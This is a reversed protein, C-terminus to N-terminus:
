KEIVVFSKSCVSCLYVLTKGIRHLLEMKDDENTCHPCTVLKEVM